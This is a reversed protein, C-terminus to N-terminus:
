RSAGARARERDCCTIWFDELTPVALIWSCIGASPM